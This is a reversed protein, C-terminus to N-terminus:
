QNLTRTQQQYKKYMEAGQFLFIVISTVITLYLVMQSNGSSMPLMYKRFLYVLLGTIGSVGLVLAYVYSPLPNIQPGSSPTQATANYRIAETSQATEGFGVADPSISAETLKTLVMATLDFDFVSKQQQGIASFLARYAEVELRCRECVEPHGSIDATCESPHLVYQQIEADTLHGSIM